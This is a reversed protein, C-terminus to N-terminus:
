KQALLWEVAEEKTTASSMNKRGSLAFVANVMIRRISDVGIVVGCKVYPRNHAMWEAAIKKTATDFKIASINTITYLPTGKYKRVVPKTTEIFAALEENTQFASLDFYVFSRGNRTFEELRVM